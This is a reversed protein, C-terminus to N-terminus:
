EAYDQDARTEKEKSDQMYLMTRPETFRLEKWMDLCDFDPADLYTYLMICLHM